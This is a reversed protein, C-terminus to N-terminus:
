SKDKKYKFRFGQTASGHKHAYASNPSILESMPSAGNAVETPRRVVRGYEIEKLAVPSDEFREHMDLEKPTKKLNDLRIKRQIDRISSRVRSFKDM